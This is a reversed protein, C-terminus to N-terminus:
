TGTRLDASLDDDADSRVDADRVAPGVIRSLAEFLGELPERSCHGMLSIQLWNRRVLYESQYAVLWGRRQLRDGITLANMGDPPVLTVVAPTAHANDVLLRVGLTRLKQRLWDSLTM